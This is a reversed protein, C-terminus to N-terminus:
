DSGKRLLRAVNRVTDLLSENQVRTADFKAIRFVLEITFGMGLVSIVTGLGVKAGLLWGILLASGELLIRVVGVPLMHLKRCLAVMLADRPGAGFGADMYFFSGVAIVLLGIVLCLVGWGMSDLMPMLQMRNCLSAVAGILLADGVTGWGIKERVAIDLLLIAVSVANHVLGYDIGSVKALGMSLAWWPALGINAQVTLYSGVGFLVLGFILEAMKIIYDSLCTKPSYSKHEM